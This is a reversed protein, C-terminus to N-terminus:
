LRWAIMFLLTFVSSIALQRYGISKPKFGVAPRSIGWLTELWQVTYPVFLWRPVVEAACLAVALLLGFSSALFATRGMRLRTMWDPTKALARQELRMYAHLISATSQAWTLIWLM